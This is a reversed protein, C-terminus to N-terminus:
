SESDWLYSNFIASVSPVALREWCVKVAHKPRGLREPRRRGGAPEVCWWTSILQCDIEPRSFAM